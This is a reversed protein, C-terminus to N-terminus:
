NKDFGALRRRRWEFGHHWNGFNGFYSNGFYLRTSDNKKPNKVEEAVMAVGEIAVFFWIAFPLGAFVGGITVPSNQAFNRTEFHPFIFFLFIAIELVLLM